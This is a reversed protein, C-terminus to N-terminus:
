KWSEGEKKLAEDFAEDFLKKGGDGTWITHTGDCIEWCGPSIEKVYPLKKGKKKLREEELNYFKEFSERLEQETM